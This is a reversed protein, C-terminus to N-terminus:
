RDAAGEIAEFQSRLADYAEARVVYMLQMIRGDDGAFYYLLMSTKGPNQGELYETGIIWRV